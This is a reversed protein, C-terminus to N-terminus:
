WIMVEWGNGRGAERNEFSLLTEQHYKHFMMSSTLSHNRILMEGPLEVNQVHSLSGSSARAMPKHLLARPRLEANPPMNSINM